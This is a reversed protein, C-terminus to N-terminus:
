FQFYIFQSANFVGACVIWVLLGLYILWRQVRTRSELAEDITRRGMWSDMGLVMVIGIGGYILDRAGGLFLPGHNLAMRELAAIAAEFDPARFFVWAICTLVFTCLIQVGAHIAPRAALGVRAAVARRAPQSLSSIVLYMGNLGGWIIYTWAAGHWLGSVVFTILINLVWRPRSARNGGLPVYLYDKFWTSLSIHWRRWFESISRAFYPKDFNKMLEFGLVRAAGIAIDSYGSFDCYIQFAFFVTAVAITSGTHHSLNAYVTNVYLALRDAVVVKKFFGWLMMRLGNRVREYDFSHPEYFQHLLNQPREIPGAVLQPFFMVYLAYIGFHREPKQQGRYVEVVYSLSQFTHFSLGIPLILGLPVLAANLGSLSALANLNSIVFDYYKFFFLVLCTSVISLALGARRRGGRSSEIFLAAFYDILITVLLILIYIPIFAMYFYCSAALLFLWRWRHPLAFYAICVLPFFILFQISNFLVNDTVPESHNPPKNKPHAGDM